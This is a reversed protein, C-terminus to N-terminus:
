YPDGSPSNLICAPPAEWPRSRPDQVSPNAVLPVIIFDLSRIAATHAETKLRHRKKPQGMGTVGGARPERVMVTASWTERVRSGAMLM